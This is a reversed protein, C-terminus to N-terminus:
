AITIIPDVSPILPTSHYCPFSLGSTEPVDEAYSIHASPVQCGVHTSCEPPDELAEPSATTENEKNGSQVRGHASRVFPRHGGLSAAGSHFRQSRITQTQTQRGHGRQRGMQRHHSTRRCFLPAGLM